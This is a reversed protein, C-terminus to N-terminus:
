HRFCCTPSPDRDPHLIYFDNSAPRIGEAFKEFYEVSRHLSQLGVVRLIAPVNRGRAVLDSFRRQAPAQEALLDHQPAPGTPPDGCEYVTARVSRKRQRVTADVSVSQDATVVPTGVVGVAPAHVDRRLGLDRSPHPHTHERDELLWREDPDPQSRRGSGGAAFWWVGQPDVVRRPCREGTGPLYAGIVHHDVLMVQVEAVRGDKM